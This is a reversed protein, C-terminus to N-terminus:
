RLRNLLERGASLRNVNQAITSRRRDVTGQTWGSMHPTMTVNPLDHFPRGAPLPSARAADPYVYWTDIIAGGIARSALADYLADEDIVAGRGVNMIVGHPQMAALAAADILGRTQDTLPLTNIVIDVRSMMGAVGDLTCSSALTPESVASRNAVHVTMGFAAARAAIAKGIHGFGVIGISQAGLESRLGAPGGAWYHWDGRRLQADAEALPVHRALLAAMVYEAIANEHGFCNCLACGQPLAEPDIGDSGAGPLQYLRAAFQPHAATLRVGIVVDAAAFAEAEGDADLGDSLAAIDHADDLLEAFGPIFTAANAGHFAIKM